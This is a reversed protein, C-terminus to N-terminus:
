VKEKSFIYTILGVVPLVFLSAFVNLNLLIFALPLQTGVITAIDFSWGYTGFVKGKDYKKVTENIKSYIWIDIFAGAFGFM